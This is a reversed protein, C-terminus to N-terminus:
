CYYVKTDLFYPDTLTADHGTSSYPTEHSKTVRGQADKKMITDKIMEAEIAATTMKLNKAMSIIFEKQSTIIGHMLVMIVINEVNQEQLPNDLTIKESREQILKLADDAINDIKTSDINSEQLRKAMLGINIALNNELENRDFM